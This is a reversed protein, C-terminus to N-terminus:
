KVTQIIAPVSVVQEDIEGSKHVIINQFGKM